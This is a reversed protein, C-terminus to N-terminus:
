DKKSTLMIRWVEHNSLKKHHKNVDLKLLIWEALIKTADCGKSLMIEEFHDIMIEIEANGFDALVEKDTPFNKIDLMAAAQLIKDETLDFRKETAKGINDLM